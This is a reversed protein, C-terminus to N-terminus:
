LLSRKTTNKNESAQNDPKEVPTLQRSNEERKVKTNAYLDLPRAEGYDTGNWSLLVRNLPSHPDFSVLITKGILHSPAEFSKGHLSIISDKYVKRKECHLFIQELDITPDIQKVRGIKNLWAELPTVGLSSHPNRHYETELWIMFKTNLQELSEISQKDLPRLFGDRVTRFFREIKGRGQPQYPKSHTLYINLVTTIRKTQNSVFTAGNDTYLTGIKGHAKLIHRIGSEFHLSKESFYFRGYLIRRTCDDIFALLIAKRKKGTGDPVPFGHMADAQVCELPSDFAFRRRDEPNKQQLREKRTLNNGRIFRSLASSSVSRNFKGEQQLLKVAARATLEPNAELKETILQATGDSIARPRGRDERPKPLLGDRGLKLCRRMWNRITAESLTTRNSNPITYHRQSKERILVARKSSSLYSNCLEGVVSYRFDAVQERFQENKQNM